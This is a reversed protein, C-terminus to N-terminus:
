PHLQHSAQTTWSAFARHPAWELQWDAHATTLLGVVWGLSLLSCFM